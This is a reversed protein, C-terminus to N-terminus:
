RGRVRARRVIKMILGKEYKNMAFLWMSITYILIYAVINLGISFYSNRVIGIRTIIVGYIIPLIMGHMMHLMERYYARMDLRGVKSYYISQIIICIVIECLFTGLASGVAGLKIALPISIVFNLFTVVMNIFIQQKHINKARMIDQGLGMTLSVTIPLMLLLGVYYSAEYEPGAWRLIFAKGFFCFGSMIMLVLLAFVRSMKVFLESLERNKETAVLRNIEAIFVNAIAAGITIYYTNLTSGVSYISIENTGGTWALVFKDVQWNLQDMVSQVTIAGAFILIEKLLKKDTKRFEFKVKIKILCYCANFWLMAIDLFLNISFIAISGYGKILLPITLTPAVIIRFLNVSKAFIFKENSIIFSSFFCNIVTIFTIFALIIFVHKLILYEQETINNGFFLEANRGILLGLVLSLVAMVSFIRVFIGNLAPLKSVDAAKTQVYYRIVAANMGANFITLYGSFSNCLSYVGYEGQGLSRLIIPTYIIGTLCQVTIILYSFIAGLSIEKKKRSEM